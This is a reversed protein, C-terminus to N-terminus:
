HAGDMALLERYKRVLTEIEVQTAHRDRIELALRRYKIAVDSAKCAIAYDKPVGAEILKAALGEFTRAKCNCEAQVARLDAADAVEEVDGSGHAVGPDSICYSCTEGRKFNSAHADCHHGFATDIWAM